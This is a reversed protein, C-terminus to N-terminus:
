WVSNKDHPTHFFKPVFNDLHIVNDPPPPKTKPVATALAVEAETASVSTPLAPLNPAVAPTTSAIGPDAWGTPRRRPISKKPRPHDIHWCIENNLRIVYECDAAMRQLAEDKNFQPIRRLQALKETLLEAELSYLQRDTLKGLARAFAPNARRAERRLQRFKRDSKPAFSFTM